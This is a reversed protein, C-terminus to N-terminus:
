TQDIKGHQAYEAPERQEDTRIRGFVGLYHQQPMLHENQPSLHSIRPQRPGVSRDHRRQAPQRGPRAM